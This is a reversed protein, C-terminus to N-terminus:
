RLQSQRQHGQGGAGADTDLDFRDGGSLLAGDALWQYSITGLGDADALMSAATLTRGQTATGSVTVGGTPADNTNAVNATASSSVSEATGLLDKYSATVTISKGVQAQTLTFTSGTAGHIATGDALWQYKVTGLGDADKLTNTATLRQGQTAKGSITVGGTPADNVNSVKATAVSSVSEATGFQDTYSARVSIAKGV